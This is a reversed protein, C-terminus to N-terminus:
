DVHNSKIIGPWVDTTYTWIICETRPLKRCGYYHSYQERFKERLDIVVHIKFM